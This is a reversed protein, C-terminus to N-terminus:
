KELQKQLESTADLVKEKYDLSPRYYYKAFVSAPTRGQLADIIETPIGAKQHLYTAHIKRCYRMDCTIGRRQCAKSIANHSPVVVVAAAAAALHSSSNSGTTITASKIMEATVFSLYAKKTVRIFQPFKYHSLTMTESDYYNAFATRDGNILRVSEVIEGPRLGVLTGFKVIQGMFPPLLDIMKRVTAIM